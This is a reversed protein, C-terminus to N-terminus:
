TTNMEKIHRIAEEKMADSNGYKSIGNRRIEERWEDYFMKALKAAIRERKQKPRHAPPKHRFRGEFYDALSERFDDPLPEGSRLHYIILATEGRGAEMLAQYFQAQAHSIDRASTMDVVSASAAHREWRERVRRGIERWDM